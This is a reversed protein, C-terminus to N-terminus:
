LKADIDEEGKSVEEVAIKESLYATKCKPCQFGTVFRNIELYSASIDKEVM